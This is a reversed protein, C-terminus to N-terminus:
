ITKTSSSIKFGKVLVHPMASTTINFTGYNGSSPVNQLTDEIMTIREIIETIKQTFRLNNVVKTMKGNEILFTGDRTLGTVSTEKPNIFNMYHLSSIYLGKKVSGIMDELSNDGKEMVKCFGGSGNKELGIKHSYYNSIVYNKLVGNRIIDNKRYIHGDRNYDYNIMGPYHPDDILTINEPFIQQNIKGEAFSIKRDLARGSLMWGLYSWLDGICRPSLIVEYEDKDVDVIENKAAQIKMKLANSFKDLDFNDMSESGFTELVTVQNTESVAKLELMVPASYALKNLGNSNVLCNTIYNCVFTGYLKFGHPSVIEDIHKLIDIKSNLPYKKIPNEKFPNEVIETNDEIDVFDPDEPLLDIVDLTEQLKQKIKERTPSSISFTYSKKGKYVSADLNVAEKTINYNVESKFFRLFDTEWYELEFQLKLDKYQDCLSKLFLRLDQLM